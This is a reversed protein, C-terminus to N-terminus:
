DPLLNKLVKLIVISAIACATLVIYVMTLTISRDFVEYYDPLSFAIFFGPLFAIMTHLFTAILVGIVSKQKQIFYTLAVVIAMETVMLLVREYGSLFLETVSADLKLETGKVIEIITNMSRIGVLLTSEVMSYGVAFAIAKFFTLTRKFLVAIVFWQVIVALIAGVIAVILLYPIYHQQMFDMFGTHNFLWTLGHEKIGWQMAVYVLGGCLFIAIMGKWQESSKKVIIGLIMLPLIVSVIAGLALAIIELVM